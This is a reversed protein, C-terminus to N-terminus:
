PQRGIPSASRAPGFHLTANSTSGILAGRPVPAGVTLHLRSRESELSAAGSTVFVTPTATVGPGPGGDPTGESPRGGSCGLALVFLAAFGISTANM